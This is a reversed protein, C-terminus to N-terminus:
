GKRRRPNLLDRMGDGLLNLALVTVTLSLGPFVMTWSADRLYARAEGLM